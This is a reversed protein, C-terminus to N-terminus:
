VWNEPQNMVRQMLTVKFKKDMFVTIANFGNSVPLPGIMNSTVVQWPREPIEHLHLPAAVPQRIIKVKQCVECTEVFRQIMTQFTALSNTLKFFMVLSEFLGRNTRFAAKWEDGEKIKVNNYGWQVDLKM